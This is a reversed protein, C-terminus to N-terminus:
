NREETDGPRRLDVSRVPLLLPFGHGRRVGGARQARLWPQGQLPPALHQTGLGPRDVFRLRPWKPYFVQVCSEDTHM